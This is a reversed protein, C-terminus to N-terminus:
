QSGMLHRSLAKLELDIIKQAQGSEVLAKVAARIEEIRHAYASKKSVGVYVPNDRKYQYRTRIIKGQYHPNSNVLYDAQVESALALDVRGALLMKLTQDM